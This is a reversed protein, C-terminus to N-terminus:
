NRQEMMRMHMTGCSKLYQLTQFINANETVLMKGKLTLFIQFLEKIELIM